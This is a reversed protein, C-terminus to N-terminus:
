IIAFTIKKIKSPIRNLKKSDRYQISKKDSQSYIKLIFDVDNITQRPNYQHVISTKTFLLEIRIQIQGNNCECMINVLELQKSERM